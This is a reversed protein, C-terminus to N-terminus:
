ARVLTKPPYDGFLRDRNEAEIILLKEAERAKDEAVAQDWVYDMYRRWVGEALFAVGEDTIPIDFAYVPKSDSDDWDHRNKRKNVAIEPIYNEYATRDKFKSQGRLVEETTTYEEKKYSLVSHKNWWHRGYTDPVERTRKTEVGTQMLMVAPHKVYHRERYTGGHRSYTYYDDWVQEEVEGVRWFMDEPLVPLGTEPDIKVEMREVADESENEPEEIVFPM